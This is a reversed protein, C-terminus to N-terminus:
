ILRITGTPNEFILGEDIWKQVQEESVGYSILTHKGISRTPTKELILLISSWGSLESLESKEASEASEAYTDVKTAEYPPTVPLVTRITRNTRLRLGEIWYSNEYVSDDTKKEKREPQYGEESLIQNFEKRKIIRRKKEQLYMLYEHYLDKAKVFFSDGIECREQLFLGIPNSAMIYKNKREDITGQATFQGRELLESLVKICKRALCSYEKDPIMDVIDRGSEQFNNEWNLILWRRYFGETTDNSAPLSNTNIIIKAYNHGTFPMKNKYEYSILDGGCLKKLLSTQSMMGFNTEGMTCVLKRYLKASEFREKVLSDLEASTINDQGLFREIIKQYQTKGNRGSGIMTIIIHIPYDALLCYAIVEYLIQKKEGQWDTFLKDIVPTEDTIALTWPIPNTNFYEPTADTEQKTKIDIIKNKFQVWTKPTDLPLHKRGVRRFAELYNGRIGATVTQGAFGLQEDIHNMLSTEDTLEYKYEDLNWMWFMQSEDYFFPQDQWFQEVNEVYNDLKLANSTFKKILDKAKKSKAFARLEQLEKIEALEKQLEAKDAQANEKDYQAQAKLKIIEEEITLVM